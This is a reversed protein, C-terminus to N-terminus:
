RERQQDEAPDPPPGTSDRREGGEVGAGPDRPRSQQEGDRDAEDTALHDVRLTDADVRAPLERLGGAARRDECGPERGVGIGNREALLRVLRPEPAPRAVPHVGLAAAGRRKGAADLEVGEAARM